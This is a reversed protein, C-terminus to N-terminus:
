GFRKFTNNKAAGGARGRGYQYVTQLKAYRKCNVVVYYDVVNYGV